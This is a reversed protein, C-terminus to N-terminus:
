INTVYVFLVVAVIFSISGYFYPRVEESEEDGEVFFIDDVSRAAKKIQHTLLQMYGKQLDYAIKKAEVSPLQKM